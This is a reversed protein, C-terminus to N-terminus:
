PQPQWTWSLRFVSGDDVVACAVGAYVDTGTCTGAGVRVGQSDDADTPTRRHRGHSRTANTVKRGAVWENYFWNKGKPTSILVADGDFDALTPMIADTWVDEPLRAAEDMVILHFAEGRISDINEGSYM